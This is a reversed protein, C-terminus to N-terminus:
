HLQRANCLVKEDPNVLDPSGRGLERPKHRKQLIERNSCGEVCVCVCVFVCVCVCLCVASVYVNLCVFAEM